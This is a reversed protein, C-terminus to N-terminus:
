NVQLKNEKIEVSYGAIKGPLLKASDKDLLWLLNGGDPHIRQAPLKQHDVPGCITDFVAQSKEEGAALFVVNRASNFVDPTLSVRQAPRDQYNATVAVTSVNNTEPSNPFLSATHGDAGLGLIVVDFIPWPLGNNGYASLRGSYDAAAAEPTLEGKIRIINEEPLNLNKLFTSNVQQFCSEPADPLVCWIPLACTQVGTM